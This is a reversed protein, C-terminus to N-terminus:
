LALGLFEGKASWLSDSHLAVSAFCLDDFALVVHFHTDLEGSVKWGIQDHSWDGWSYKFGRNVTWAAEDVPASFVFDNLIDEQALPRV